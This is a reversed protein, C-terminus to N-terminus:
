LSPLYTQLQTRVTESISAPGGLVVIRYPNLRDLEAAVNAPIADQTVLLVPAGAEIAAASGSLADPFVAGSAVYVTYVGRPFARASIAASVAFRDAGDVRIAPRKQELETVVSDAITNVGGLVIVYKPNLRDLEASVSAPVTDKQVLLVPGHDRGAAASGSLADPFVAGSAIYAVEPGTPFAAKSVAASVEYRDVGAIRTVDSSYTKLQAQTAASISATGGLVVIRRPRLSSLEARVDGPIDDRTVLLVPGGQAGAAASGSLADAFGSGAAIYVVPVGSRFSDAAVGASVAFRDAGGIRDVSPLPSPQPAFMVVHSGGTRSTETTFIRHTTVDVAIGDFSDESSSDELQLTELRFAQIGPMGRAYNTGYIVHLSPDVAMESPAIPLPLSTSQAEWSIPDYAVLRVSFPQAVAAILEGNAFLLSIPAEALTTSTYSGDSNVTTVTSSALSAVFARHGAQDVVVHNPLRGTPVTHVAGAGLDIIEVMGADTDTVYASHTGEDVAIASPSAYPLPWSALIQNVTPSTPDVDVVHVISVPRAGDVVMLTHNSHDLELLSSLGLGFRITSIPAFSPGSVDYAEVTHADRDVVYGRQTTSDIAMTSLNASSASPAVEAIRAFPIDRTTAEATSVGAVIM